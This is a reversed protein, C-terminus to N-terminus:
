FINYNFPVSSLFSTPYTKKKEGYMAVALHDVAIALITHKGTITLRSDLSECIEEKKGGCKGQDLSTM